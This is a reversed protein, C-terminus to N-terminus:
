KNEDRNRKRELYRKKYEEAKNVEDVVAVNDSAAEAKGDDINDVITAQETQIDEVIEKKSEQKEKKDIKDELLANLEKKRRNVEEILGKDGEGRRGGGYAANRTLLNSYFGMMGAEKNLVSHKEDYKETIKHLLEKKKNIVMQQEYAKTVYKPKDEVVGERELRRREAEDKLIARELKVREANEIISNIYKPKDKDAQIIKRRQRESSINEYISDYENLSPDELLNKSTESAILERVHEQQKLINKNITKKYDFNEEVEEEDFDDEDLKIIKKKDDKKNIILGFKNSM